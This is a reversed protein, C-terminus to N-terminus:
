QIKANQKVEMVIISWRDNIDFSLTAFYQGLTLLKGILFHGIDLKEVKHM